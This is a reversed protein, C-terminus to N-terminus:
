RSAESPANAAPVLRHFEDCRRCQIGSPGAFTTLVDWDHGHFRCEQRAIEKAAERITYTKGDDYPPEPHYIDFHEAGVQMRCSRCYFDSM